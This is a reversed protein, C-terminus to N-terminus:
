RGSGSFTVAQPGEQGLQVIRKVVDGLIARAPESCLSATKDPQDLSLCKLPNGSGDVPMVSVFGVNLELGIAGQAFDVITPNLRRHLTVFVRWGRADHVFRWTL